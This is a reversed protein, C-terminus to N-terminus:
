KRKPRPFEMLVSELASFDDIYTARLLRDGVVWEDWCFDEDQAIPVGFKARLKDRSDARDISLFLPGKYEGWKVNQLPFIVATLITEGDGGRSQDPFIDADTFTLMVDRLQINTSLRDKKLVPTDKLGADKLASRLEADESSRGLFELWNLSEM